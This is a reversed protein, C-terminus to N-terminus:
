KTVEYTISFIHLLPNLPLHIKHLKKEKNMCIKNVYIVGIERSSLRVTFAPTCTEININFDWMYPTIVDYVTIEKKEISDDAYILEINDYVDAWEAFALIYLNQIITPTQINIFQGDCTLNDLKDTNALPIDFPIDCFYFPLKPMTEPCFMWNAIGWDLDNRNVYYSVNGTIKHNFIKHM